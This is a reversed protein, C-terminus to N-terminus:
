VRKGDGADKFWLTSLYLLINPGILDEVADLIKPHHALEWLWLFGLHVKVRLHRDIHGDIEGEFAELKARTAAAEETTLCDFPFCYGENWFQSVEAETLVKPM